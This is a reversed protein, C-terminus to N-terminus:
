KSAVHDVIEHTLDRMQPYARMYKDVYFAYQETKEPDPQLTDLEHKKLWPAVKGQTQVREQM